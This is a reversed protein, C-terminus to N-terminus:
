LRITDKTKSQQEETSLYERRTDREKELKLGMVIEM